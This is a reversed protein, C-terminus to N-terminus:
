IAHMRTVDTNSSVNTTRVSKSGAMMDSNPGRLQHGRRIGVGLESSSRGLSPQSSKHEDM